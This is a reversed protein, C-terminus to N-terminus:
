TDTPLARPHTGTQKEHSFSLFKLLHFIFPSDPHIFDGVNLHKLKTSIAYTNNPQGIDPWENGSIDHHLCNYSVYSHIVLQSSTHLYLIYRIFQLNLM